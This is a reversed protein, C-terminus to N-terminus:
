KNDMREKFSELKDQAFALNFQLKIYEAEDDTLDKTKEMLALMARAWERCKETDINKM